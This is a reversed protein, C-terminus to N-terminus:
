ISDNRFYTIDKPQNRNQLWRNELPTTGLVPKVPHIPTENVPHHDTTTESPVPEKQHEQASPFIQM